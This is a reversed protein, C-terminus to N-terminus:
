LEEGRSLEGAVILRKRVLEVLPKLSKKSVSGCEPRGIFCSMRRLTLGTEHAILDGLHCLGLYNGYARDFIFETPYYGTVALGGADDYSLSVQQLCPFGRRTQGTHDKVPDLCSIQLASQRPRRNKRLLDIMHGLQDVEVVEEGKCGRYAMMRQFYTGHRNSRNLKKLRPFLKRTCFVSFKEYQPRGRRTWIRHPFIVMGSVDCPNKKQRKLEKELAGRIQNDEEPLPSKFPGVSVILPCLERKSTNVARILAHGWAYSLNPSEILKPLETSM